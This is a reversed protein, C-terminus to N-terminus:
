KGTHCQIWQYIKELADKGCPERLIDHRGPYLVSETQLGCGAYLKETKRVGKGFEGVPDHDGSIFLLPTDPNMKRINKRKGVYTMGNLLEHFLGCSFDEGRNPDEIYADIVAEDSCLWDFGTRAPQFGSNYQEFTMQHITKTPNARGHKKEEHAAILKAIALEIPSPQGTGVLVAGNVSNPYQILFDRVLFSGLSFGLIIHPLSDPIQEAACAHCSLIDKVVLNWSGSPGFYMKSASSSISKGHGPLDHGIVAMGKGAFFGAIEDYRDIYETVGHVIQLIATPKQQPLWIIGHNTTIRDASPFYFESKAAPSVNM